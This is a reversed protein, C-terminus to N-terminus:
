APIFYLVLCANNLQKNKLEIERKVLNNLRERYDEIFNELDKINNEIKLRDNELRQLRKEKEVKSIPDFMKETMLLKPVRVFGYQDAQKGYFYNFAM